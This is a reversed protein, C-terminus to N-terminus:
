AHYEDGGTPPQVEITCTEVDPIFTRVIGRALVTHNRVAALQNGLVSDLARAPVATYWTFGDQEFPLAGRIMTTGVDAVVQIYDLHDATDEVMITDTM